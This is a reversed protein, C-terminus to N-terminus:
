VLKATAIADEDDVAVVEDIVDLNLVAPVFGAGIGQIKHPGPLGGSLVASAKPEVAVVHLDPNREKLREGAGTITGGTGVGAVLVDVDGGTDRWIEEATTRRPTEPNAPNSSQAPTFSTDLEEPGRKAARGAGRM